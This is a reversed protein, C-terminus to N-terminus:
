GASRSFPCSPGRVAQPSPPLTQGEVLWGNMGGVGGRGVGARSSGSARNLHKGSRATLGETESPRCLPLCLAGRM